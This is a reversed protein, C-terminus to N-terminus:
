LLQCHLRRDGSESGLSNRPRSQSPKLFLDPRMGRGPEALTQAQTLTTKVPRVLAEMSIRYTFDFAQLLKFRNPATLTPPVRANQLSLVAVLRCAQPKWLVTPCYAVAM